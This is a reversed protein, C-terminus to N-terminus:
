RDGDLLDAAYQKQREQFRAEREADARERPTLGDPEVHRWLLRDIHMSPIWLEDHFAMHERVAGELEAVREKLRRVVDAVRDVDDHMGVVQERLRSSSETM